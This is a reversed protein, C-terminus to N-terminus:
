GFIIRKGIIIGYYDYFRCKFVLYDGIELEDFFFVFIYKVCM